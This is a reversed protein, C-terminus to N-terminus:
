QEEEAEAERGLRYKIDYNVIFDLEEETFGHHQALVHDIKDLILKSQAPYFEQYRIQGAKTRITREESGDRLHRMLEALLRKLSQGCEVDSIKKYPM